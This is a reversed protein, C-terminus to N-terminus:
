LRLLILQLIGRPWVPLFLLSWRISKSVLQVKFAEGRKAPPVAALTARLGCVAEECIVIEDIVAM